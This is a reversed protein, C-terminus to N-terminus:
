DNYASEGHDALDLGEEEELPTVRLGIIADIIKLLTFSVIGSLIITYLAALCQTSLQRGISFDGLGGAFSKVSGEGSFSLSYGCALWVLSMVCTLAFCQMFISLVNRAKVLGAYFLALGPIMMFLVLATAALMWGTDGSDIVPAAGAALAPRTAFVLLLLPVAHLRPLAPLSRM